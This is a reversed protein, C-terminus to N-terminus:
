EIDFIIENLGKRKPVNPVKLPYGVTIFAMPDFFDPLNLFKKIIEKAFLPACYWCASLEKLEFALLLYTASASISQVAMIYENLNRESDTYKELESKDLCMLLLYPASEFKFKTKDIKSKSYVESRGDRILDNRLKTNMSRILDNRIEGKELIVYRWYQSNHASPAWRALEICELLLEKDVKRSNFELKYSRRKKLIETFDNTKRFIDISKDRLIEKISVDDKLEFKYGKILVIPLGEDSEGMILQAASALNDVQGIITSQLEHGFLDHAGRMDLIASIGSIGLAVGIAGVRFPRGFSDSIIVAVKKKTINEIEKRIIFSEKDSDEPLLAVKNEGEINSKDIGANACVFGHKTEVILVHEAKLINVSEDLIKQILEPRKITIGKKQAKPSIKKYIENAKNSPEVENLDIVQGTSKSIVTQAIVIIDGNDLSVLNEELASIIIKSISDGKKILPIGKLGILSIKNKM